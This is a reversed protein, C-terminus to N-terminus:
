FEISNAISNIEDAMKIFNGNENPGQFIAILLDNKKRLIFILSGVKLKNPTLAIISVKRGEYNKLRIMEDGIVQFKPYVDNLQDLNEVIIKDFSKGIASSDNKYLFITFNPIYGVNINNKTFSVVNKNCKYETWNNTTIFSFGSYKHSEKITNSKEKKNYCSSICFFLIFIAAFKIKM